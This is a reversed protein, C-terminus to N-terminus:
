WLAFHSHLITCVTANATPGQAALIKKVLAEFAEDNGKNPYKKEAMM